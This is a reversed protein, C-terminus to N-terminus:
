AWRGALDAPSVGYMKARHDSIYQPPPEVAYTADTDFVELARSTLSVATNIIANLQAELAELHIAGNLAHALAGLQRLIVEQYTATPALGPDVIALEEWQPCPLARALHALGIQVGSHTTESHMPSSSAARVAELASNLYCFALSRPPASMDPSSFPKPQQWGRVILSSIAQAAQAVQVSSGVKGSRLRAYLQSITGYVAGQFTRPPDSEADLAALKRWVGDAELNRQVRAVLADIAKELYKQQRREDMGSVADRLSHLEGLVVTLDLGGIRDAHPNSVPAVLHASM